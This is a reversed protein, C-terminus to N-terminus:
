GSPFCHFVALAVEARQAGRTVVLAPSTISGMASVLDMLVFPASAATLRPHPRPTALRPRPAALAYYLPPLLGTLVRNRKSLRKLNTNEVM